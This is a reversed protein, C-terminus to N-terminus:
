LVTICCQKADDDSFSEWHILTCHLEPRGAVRIISLTSHLSTCHQRNSTQRGTSSKGLHIHSSMSSFSSAWIFVEATFISSHTHTHMHAWNCLQVQISWTLSERYHVCKSQKAKREKSSLLSGLQVWESKKRAPWNPKCNPAPFLPSLFCMLM